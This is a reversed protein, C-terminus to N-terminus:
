VSIPETEDAIRLRTSSVPTAMATHSTVSNQADTHANAQGSPASHDASQQGLSKELKTSEAMSKIENKKCVPHFRHNAAWLFAMIFSLSHSSAVFLAYTLAWALKDLGHTDGGLVLGLILLLPFTFLVFTYGILVLMTYWKQPNLITPIARSVWSARMSSEHIPILHTTTRSQRRMVFPIFIFPIFGGTITAVLVQGLVDYSFFYVQDTRVKLLYTVIFSIVYIIIFILTTRMYLWKSRLYFPVTAYCYSDTQGCRPCAPHLHKGGVVVSKNVHYVDDAADHANNNSTVTGSVCGDDLHTVPLTTPQVFVDRAVLEHKKRSDENNM